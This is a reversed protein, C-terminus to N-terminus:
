ATPKAQKRQQSARYSGYGLVAFAAAVAAPIIFM